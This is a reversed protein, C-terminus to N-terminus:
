DGSKLSRIAERQLQELSYNPDSILSCIAAVMGYNVMEERHERIFQFVSQPNYPVFHLESIEFRDKDVASSFNSSIAEQDWVRNSHRLDIVGIIYWEFLDRNLCLGTLKLLDRNSNDIRIGFEEQLGRSATEFPGSLKGPHLDLDSAKMGEGVGCMLLGPDISVSQSRRQFVLKNDTTIIAISVAIITGFLPHGGRLIQDELAENIVSNRKQRPLQQFMNVVTRHHIYSGVVVDLEISQQEETGIRRLLYKQLGVLDNNDYIYGDREKEDWVTRIKKYSEELEPPIKIEPRVLNLRLNEPLYGERCLDIMRISATFGYFDFYGGKTMTETPVSHSIRESEDKIYEDLEYISKIYRLQNIFDPIKCDEDVIYPIISISKGKTLGIGIAVGVEYWVWASNLSESSVIVLLHTARSLAELVESVIYQGPKINKEYIFHNINSSKLYLAIDRATRLDKSNLSIFFYM